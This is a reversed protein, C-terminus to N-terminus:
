RIPMPAEWVYMIRSARWGVIVLVVCGLVMKSLSVM